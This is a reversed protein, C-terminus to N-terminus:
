GGGSAPAHPWAEPSGRRRTAVGVMGLGVLLLVATSPEPVPPMNFTMRFALDSSPGQFDCNSGCDWKTLPDPLHGGSNHYVFHGGSYADTEISRWRAQGAVGDFLGATSFFAVYDQDPTLEVGQTRITFPRFQVQGPLLNRVGSTYLASGEVRGEAENWEYVYARLRVTSGIIHSLFFTFSDLRTDAHPTMFTQGYTTTDPEGFYVIESEAGPTTDILTGGLAAGTALPLLIALMGAAGDALRWSRSRDKGGPRPVQHFAALGSILYKM